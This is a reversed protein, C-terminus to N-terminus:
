RRYPGGASDRRISIYHERLQEARMRARTLVHDTAMEQHLLAREDQQQLQREDGGLNGGSDGALEDIQEFFVVAERLATTLLGAARADATEAARVAEVAAYVCEACAGSPLEISEIEDDPRLVLGGYAVPAAPIPRGAAIAALQELLEEARQPDVNTALPLWPAVRLAAALGVVFKKQM